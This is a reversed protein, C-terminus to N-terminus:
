KTPFIFAAFGGGRSLQGILKSTEESREEETMNAVHVRDNEDEKEWATITDFIAQPIPRVPIGEALVCRGKTAIVRMGAIRNCRAAVRENTLVTDAYEDPTRVGSQMETVVESFSQTQIGECWDFRFAFTNLPDGATKAKSKLRQKELEKLENPYNKDIDQFTTNARM